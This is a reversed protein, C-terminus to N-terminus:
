VVPMDDDAGRRRTIFVFIHDSWGEGDGRHTRSSWMKWRKSSCREKVM